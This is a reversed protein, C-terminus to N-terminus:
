AYLKSETQSFNLLIELRYLYVREFAQTKDFLKGCLAMFIFYTFVTINTWRVEHKYYRKMAKNKEQTGGSWNSATWLVLRILRSRVVTVWPFWKILSAWVPPPSSRKKSKVSFDIIYIDMLYKRKFIRQTNLHQKRKFYFLIWYTVVKYFIEFAFCVFM